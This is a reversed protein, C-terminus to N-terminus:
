RDRNKQQENGRGQVRPTQKFTGVTISETNPSSTIRAPLDQHVLEALAHSEAVSATDQVTVELRVVQEHVALGHSELDGIKPETTGERNRELLVCM